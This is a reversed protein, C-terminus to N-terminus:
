QLMARDLRDILEGTEEGSINLPPLL